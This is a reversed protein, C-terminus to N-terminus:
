KRRAAEALATELERSYRSALKAAWGDSILKRSALYREMKVLPCSRRGDAQQFPSPLCQILTPGNGRRAHVMGEFAVRYVGVADHSDVTIVPFGPDFPCVAADAGAAPRSGHAVLLLPLREAGAKQLLARAAPRSLEHASCFFATVRKKQERAQQVASALMAQLPLAPDAPPVSFALSNGSSWKARILSPVLCHRSPALLDRAGLAITVAAVAGEQGRASTYRARLGKKRALHLLYEDLIRARLMADYLALLTKRSILSFASGNKPASAPSPKATKTMLGPRPSNQTIGRNYISPRLQMRQAQLGLSDAVFTLPRLLSCFVRM